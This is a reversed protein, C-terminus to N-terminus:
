PGDELVLFSWNRDLVDQSSKYGSYPRVFM